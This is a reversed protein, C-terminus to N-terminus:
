AASMRRIPTIKREGHEIELLVATWKVLAARRENLYDHTNYTGEVGRLKHGLCREAVESKVGLVALQTRMTRRLDHLTFHAIGHEVNALAANLTDTGVHLTRRRRDRRRKPFVHDSGGSVLRLAQLWEIVEPVLPITLPEGTKTQSGPLRWVPGTEVHGEFDFEHWTAKLLEGKRVGLALLLKIALFNEGGFSPSERLARFLEELESRSLARRRKREPGGADSQDFDAVPNSPLLRRRVGFRFVRRMFRLLDNAATPARKSVSALLRAADAPTIDQPSRDGFEPLLYNDLHRRPVHPHKLRKAEIETAFWDEALGRFTGLTKQAAIAARQIDLAARKELLPDRQKDLMTRKERAEVRADALSMDPYNGLVMWRPRGAFRYRLTWAAGDRTQKRFYLGGGDCLMVPQGERHAREVSLATLKGTAM